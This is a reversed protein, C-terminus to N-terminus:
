QLRVSADTHQMADLGSALESWRAKIDSIGGDSQVQVCVHTAGRRFHGAVRNIATSLDPWAVLSEVLRDSGDGALDEPGFGLRALNNRYNPRQLYGTVSTRAIDRARAADSDLVVMQEVALFPSAGLLRRALATHELPALYTHAGAASAAALRLMNPGLAALLRPPPETPGVGRFPALDMEKLYRVMHSYPREYDHRRVDSVLHAHSVGIGLLFRGPFAEELSRQTNVMTVADRAYINAVGTAFRIRETEGLALTATVFPDRGLTEPTWVASFGLREAHKVLNLADASTVKDLASTWIGVSGTLPALVEMGTM